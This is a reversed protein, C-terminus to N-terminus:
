VVKQGVVLVDSRLGPVAMTLALMPLRAYEYIHLPNFGSGFRSRGRGDAQAAAGMTRLSGLRKLSKYFFTEIAARRVVEFRARSIVDALEGLTYEKHHFFNFENEYIGAVAPWNPVGALMKLRTKLDVANKTDIVLHGGIRLMARCASLFHRPTHPIHEIVNGAFVVDVTADPLPNVDHGVDAYHVRVGLAAIREAAESGGATPYDISMVDYGMRHLVIPVIGHGTGIDVCSGHAPLYRTITELEARLLRDSDITFGYRQAFSSKRFEEIAEALERNLSSHSM